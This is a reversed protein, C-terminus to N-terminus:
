KKAFAAPAISSRTLAIKLHAKEQCVDNVLLKFFDEKVDKSTLLTANKVDPTVDALFIKTKRLSLAGMEILKNVRNPTGIAIPYYAKSLLDMQEETKIHKAFLKAIKCNPIKGSVSKVIETCRLASACM